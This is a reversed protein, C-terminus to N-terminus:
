ADEKLSKLLINNLRPIMYRPDEILGAAMLANDLLQEAITHPNRNVNDKANFLEVILPHSPNIELNQPPLDNGNEGSRGSNAQEVMKMMRRMAGSEHDTV